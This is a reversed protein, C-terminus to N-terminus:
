RYYDPGGGGGGGGPSGPAYANDDEDAWQSNDVGPPPTKEYDYSDDNAPGGAGM